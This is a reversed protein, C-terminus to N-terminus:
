NHNSSFYLEKARKILTHSLDIGIYKVSKGIVKSCDGQGCGIDAIYEPKVKQLWKKLYPFIEKERTGNSNSSEVWAIWEKSLSTNYMNIM